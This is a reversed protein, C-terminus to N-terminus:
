LPQAARQLSERYFNSETIALSCVTGTQHKVMRVMTALTLKGAKPSRRPKVECQIAPLGTYLDVAHQALTLLGAGEPLLPKVKEVLPRPVMYYFFIPPIWQWDWKRKGADRKFDSLSVKIEVELGHRSANVGYVDPRDGNNPGREFTVIACGRDYRLWSAVVARMTVADAPFPVKPKIYQNLENM